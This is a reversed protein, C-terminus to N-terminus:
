RLRIETVRDPERYNGQKIFLECSGAFVVGLSDLVTTVSYYSTEILTDDIFFFAVFEDAFVGTSCYHWETVGDSFESRIPDGGMVRVVEEPSMDPRARGALTINQRVGGCGIAVMFLCMALGIVTHQRMSVDSM